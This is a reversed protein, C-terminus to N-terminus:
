SEKIKKYIKLQSNLNEAKKKYKFFLIKINLEIM